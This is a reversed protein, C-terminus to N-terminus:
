LKIWCVTGKSKGDTDPQSFASLWGFSEDFFVFRLDKQAPSIRVLNLSIVFCSMEILAITNFYLLHDHMCMNAVYKSCHMNIHLTKNVMTTFFIMLSFFSIASKNYSLKTDSFGNNQPLNLRSKRIYILINTMTEVM